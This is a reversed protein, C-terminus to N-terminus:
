FVVVQVHSCASLPYSVVPFLLGLVLHISATSLSMFVTPSSLFIASSLLNHHLVMSSWRPSGLHRSLESSFFFFYASLFIRSCRAVYFIVDACLCVKFDDFENCHLLPRRSVISYAVTVMLLMAPHNSFLNDMLRLWEDRTLM